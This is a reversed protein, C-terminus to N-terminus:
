VKGPQNGPIHPQAPNKWAFLPAAEEQITRPWRGLVVSELAAVLGFTFISVVQAIGHTGLMDYLFVKAAGILTVLIAVNRIEKNHRFLAFLMLGAAAVNILVSQACRYTNVIDGPMMVLFQYVAARTMFFSSGLAALLLLVASRDHRDLGTFFTSNEPPLSKRSLQYHYLSSIALLGAPIVTLVDIAAGSKSQLFVAMAGAAYLQVLYSIARTGGNQWQRSLIILFFAAVALVPLTLLFSGTAAPLALALLAAAALLFSNAGAGAATRRVALRFALGFHAIACAIGVWGLLQGGSGWAGLVYWAIAYSFAANVAPIFFDFRSIRAASYRFIGLLAIGAYTAAFIAIVPLFWHLALASAPTEKNYLAQGLKIGWQSFMLMTVALLTWRLWSCRKLRAAFFGLITATWLVMTLYPFFPNPYDIAAGALCMGLTGLSIPVFVKFQYSIIAMAVGTAMLTMYAPVLPLAQFRSHTEVVIVSMLVAGCAAFVPALPSERRYCYWGAGVLAAAYGMGLASGLLTDIIKYDTIARLALAIVLLFCLTALRPLLSARHAWSLLEESVDEPEASTGAHSFPATEAQASLLPAPRVQPTDALRAELQEVKRNLAQMQGALEEVRQELSNGNGM